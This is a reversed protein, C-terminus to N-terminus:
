APVVGNRAVALLNGDFFGGSLSGTKWFDRLRFSNRRSCAPTRLKVGAAARALVAVSFVCAHPLEAGAAARALAAAAPVRAHPLEM